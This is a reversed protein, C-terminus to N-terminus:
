AVARMVQSKRLPEYVEGSVWLRHLLVSIEARNGRDSTEEREKRWAGGAEIGM